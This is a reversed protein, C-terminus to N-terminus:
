SPTKVVDASQRARWSIMKKALSPDAVALVKLALLAANKAGSIRIKGNLPIGGEIQLKDM